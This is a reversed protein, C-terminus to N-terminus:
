RQRKTRMDAKNETFDNFKSAIYVLIISYFFEYQINQLGPSTSM